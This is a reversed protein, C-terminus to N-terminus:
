KRKEYGIYFLELLRKKVDLRSNPLGYDMERMFQQIFSKNTFKFKLVLTTYDQSNKVWFNVTSTFSESVTIFKSDIVEAVSM